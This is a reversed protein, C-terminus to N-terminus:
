VGLTGDDVMCQDNTRIWDGHLYGLSWHPNSLNWSGSVGAKGCKLYSWQTMTCHEGQNSHIAGHHSQEDSRLLEVRLHFHHCRGIKGVMLPSNMWKREWPIAQPDLEITLQLTWDHGLSSYKSKSRALAEALSLFNGPLTLWLGRVWGM